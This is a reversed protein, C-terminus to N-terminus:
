VEVGVQRHHQHHGTRYCCEVEPLPKHAATPASPVNLLLQAHKKAHVPGGMRATDAACDPHQARFARIGYPWRIYHCAGMCGYSSPIDHTACTTLKAFIQSCPRPNLGHRFCCSCCRESGRVGACMEINLAERFDTNAMISTSQAVSWMRKNSAGWNQHAVCFPADRYSAM